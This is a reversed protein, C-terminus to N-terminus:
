AAFNADRFAKAFPNNHIKMQTVAENQYATVAIFDTEPFHFSLSKESPQLSRSASNKKEVKTFTTVIRYKHMSHLLINSDASDKNNTLKVKSFILKTKNLQEGSNLSDTHIYPDQLAETDAIGVPLWRNTIYKFRRSSAPLIQLSVSYMADPALGSVSLALYPFMRRGSRNIIMETGVTNFAKWLASNLLTLTVGDRTLSVNSTLSEDVRYRLPTDDQLHAVLNSPSDVATNAPESAIMDTSLVNLTSDAASKVSTTRQNQTKMSRQSKGFFEDWASDAKCADISPLKQSGRPENTNSIYEIWPQAVPQWLLSRDPKLSKALAKNVQEANASSYLSTIQRCSTNVAVSPSYGDVQKVPELLFQEAPQPSKNHHALKKLIESTVPNTDQYSLQNGRSNMIESTNTSKSRKFSYIVTDSLRRKKYGDFVAMQMERNTPAVYRPDKPAPSPQMSNVTASTTKSIEQHNETGTLNARSWSNLVEVAKLTSNKSFRGPDSRNFYNFEHFSNLNGVGHLSHTKRNTYVSDSQISPAISDLIEKDSSGELGSTTFSKYSDFNEGAQETLQQLHKVDSSCNDSRSQNSLGSKMVDMVPTTYWFSSSSPKEEFSLRKSTSYRSCDGGDQLINNISHRAQLKKPTEM